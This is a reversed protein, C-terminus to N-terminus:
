EFTNAMSYFSDLGRFNKWIFVLDESFSRALWLVVRKLQKSREKKQKVLNSWQIAMEKSVRNVLGCDYVSMSGNLDEVDMEVFCSLPLRTSNANVYAVTPRVLANDLFSWNPPQLPMDAKLNNFKVNFHFDVKPEEAKPPPAGLLSNVLAWLAEYIPLPANTVQQPPLLIHADVDVNGARLWGMPGEVKYNFQDIPVGTVKAHVKKGERNDKFIKKDGEKQYSHLSFLCNDYVGVFTNAHLLDYLIWQERFLDTDLSLVSVNFHRFNPYCFRVLADEVRFKDFVFDGQQPKRRPPIADPCDRYDVVGRLGKIFCEQILGKGNLLRWLSIKAEITEVQVDFRIRNSENPDKVIKVQNFQLKGEKWNPVIASKFAM